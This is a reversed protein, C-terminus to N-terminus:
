YSVTYLPELSRFFLLFFTVLVFIYGFVKRVIRLMHINKKKMIKMNNCM